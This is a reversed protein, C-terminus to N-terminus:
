RVYRGTAADKRARKRQYSYGEPRPVHKWTKGLKILSVSVDTIGYLRGIEYCALDSKLIEMVVADDLKATNSKIGQNSRGKNACDVMNDKATGTFLHCPNVCSPTDCKHCVMLGSPIPGVHAEYSYRHARRWGSMLGYGDKDQGATWLWCGSNPEPIYKQDFLPDPRM